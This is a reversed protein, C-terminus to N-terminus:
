SSMWQHIHWPHNISCCKRSHLKRCKCMVL